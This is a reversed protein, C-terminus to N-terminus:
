NYKWYTVQTMCDDYFENSVYDCLKESQLKPILGFICDYELTEDDLYKVCIEPNSKIYAFNNVCSEPEDMKSCIKPEDLNLSTNVEELVKPDNNSNIIEISTFVGILVIAILGLLGTIM